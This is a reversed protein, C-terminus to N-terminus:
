ANKWRCQQKMYNITCTPDQSLLNAWTGYNGVNRARCRAQAMVYVDVFTSYYDVPSGETWQTPDKSVFSSGRDLHLVSKNQSAAVAQTFHREKKAYLLAAQTAEASDTAVYVPEGEHRLQSACNMANRALFKLQNPGTKSDYQSRVHVAVYRNPELHLEHMTQDIRQQVAPAPQFLFKWVDRFIEDYVPEDRSLSFEDYLNAGHQHSQYLMTVVAPLKAPLQKGRRQLKKELPLRLLQRIHQETGIRPANRLDVQQRM